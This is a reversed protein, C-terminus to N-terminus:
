NLKTENILSNLFETQKSDSALEKKLIKEAIQVSLEAVKDKIEAIAKNKQNEIEIQADEIIKNARQKAEIESSRVIKDKTEKAERLLVDRELRAAALIKENQEKLQLMELKANQASNLSEEITKERDKIIQMIPKWAFKKLIFLVILFSLAMWFLLGFDPTVLGM